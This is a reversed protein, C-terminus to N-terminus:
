SPWGCVRAADGFLLRKHAAIVTRNKPAIEAALALFASWDGLQNDTRAIEFVAQAYPRATTGHDAM